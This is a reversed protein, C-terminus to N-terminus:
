NHKCLPGTMLIHRRDLSLIMNQCAFGIEGVVNPFSPDLAPQRHSIKGLLHADTLAADVEPFRIM